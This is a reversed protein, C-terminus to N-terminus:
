AEAFWTGSKGFRRLDYGVHAATPLLSWLVAGRIHGRVLSSLSAALLPVAFCIEHFDYANMAALGWSFGYAACLM